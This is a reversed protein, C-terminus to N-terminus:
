LLGQAAIMVIGSVIVYGADIGLAAGSKRCFAGNAIVLMAAAVIALIATILADTTATIGVVLALVFLGVLQAGMAFVPFGDADMPVRSGEDWKRGFLAPAYWAWGVLFAVVTGAIVAPWNVGTM